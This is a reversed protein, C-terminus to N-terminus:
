VDLGFSRGRKRDEEPVFPADPRRNKLMALAHM